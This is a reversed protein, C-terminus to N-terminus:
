RARIVFTTSAPASTQGALAATLQLVYRGASLAHGLLRGSFRVRNVGARDSHTFVGVITLKTCRGRRGTCRLVRFTTTSPLTDRFIIRAAPRGAPSLTPGHTAADFAHPSIHLVALMPTPPMVTYAIATHTSQGDQSVATVTYSHPGVKTTDLKGGPSPAVNSDSCSVIGPGAAGEACSFATPVRQGLVVTAGRKPSTITVAPPAAANYHVSATASLGDNSTATVTITHQGTTSTDLPSGSPHGQQDVCSFIGTGAAGETCSFASDVAAGQPYTVGDHPGAIAVMPPTAVTYHVTSTTSLGDNSTATVTLIHQGTTSTDLPSGSPHGQQDVCSSIGTGNASETCSFSSVVAAGPRYTM